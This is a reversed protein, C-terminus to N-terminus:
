EQIYGLNKLRNVLAQTSVGYKRSLGHLFDDDLLDVDDIGALDSELFEKPMLLSAAFFNAEREAEDTGQSSVDDRLRVRFGHDVHLQEQEHLLLHGLEHATTFNQRAPAHHTNVGIVAQSQDRYLFGSMDDELSQYFIRAGNAKAIKEVPVPAEEIQYQVLLHQILSEIKRRRIAM